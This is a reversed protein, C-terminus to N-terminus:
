WAYLCILRDPDGNWDVIVGANKLTEVLHEGLEKTLTSSEGTGNFARYCLYVFGNEWLCEEDQETYHVLGKIIKGDIEADDAEDLLAFDACERCPYYNMRALYGEKELEKFVTRIKTKLERIRDEPNEHAILWTLGARRRWMDEKALSEPGFDPEENPDYPNEYGTETQFNRGTISEVFEKGGLWDKEDLLKKLTEEQYATLESEMYYCGRHWNACARYQYFALENSTGGDKSAGVKEDVPYWSEIGRGDIVFMFKSM